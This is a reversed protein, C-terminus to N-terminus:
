ESLLDEARGCFEMLMTVAHRCQAQADALTLPLQVQLGQWAHAACVSALPVGMYKASRRCIVARCSHQWPSSVVILVVFPPCFDIM